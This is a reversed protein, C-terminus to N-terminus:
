CAARGWPRGEQRTSGVKEIEILSDRKETGKLEKTKSIALAELAKPVSTDAMIATRRSETRISKEPPDPDHYPRTTTTTPFNPINERRKKPM